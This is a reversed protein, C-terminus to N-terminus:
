ERGSHFEPEEKSLLEKVTHYELQQRSHGGAHKMIQPFMEIEPCVSGWGKESLGETNKAEMTCYNTEVM